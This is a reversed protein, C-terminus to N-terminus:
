ILYFLYFNNFFNVSCKLKIENKNSLCISCRFFDISENFNSDSESCSSSNMSNNNSSNKRAALKRQILQECYNIRNSIFYFNSIDIFITFKQKNELSNNITNFNQDTFNNSNEPIKLCSESKLNEYKEGNM